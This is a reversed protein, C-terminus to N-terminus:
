VKGRRIGKPATKLKRLKLIVGIAGPVGFCAILGHLLALGAQVQVNHSKRAFYRILNNM